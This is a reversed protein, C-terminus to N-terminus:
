LIILQSLILYLSGGVFDARKSIQLLYLFDSRAERQKTERQAVDPSAIGEKRAKCSLM